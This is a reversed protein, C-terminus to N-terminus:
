VPLYRRVMKTEDQSDTQLIYPQGSELDIGCNPPLNCEKLVSLLVDRMTRRGEMVLDEARQECAVLAFNANILIAIQEENPKKMM